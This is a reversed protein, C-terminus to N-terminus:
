GHTAEHERGNRKLAEATTRVGQADERGIREGTTSGRLMQATGIHREYTLVAREIVSDLKDLRVGDKSGDDFGIFYIEHVLARIHAETTPWSNRRARYAAQREANSKPSASAGAVSAAAESM